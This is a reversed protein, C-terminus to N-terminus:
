ELAGGRLDAMLMAVALEPAANQLVQAQARRVRAFNASAAQLDVPGTHGPALALDPRGAAAVAQDRFHLALLDLAEVLGERDIRAGRFGGVLEQAFEWDQAADASGLAQRTQELRRALDDENLKLARGLSGAALATRLRAAQPDVGRAVLEDIVLEDALPGFSVKRCRSVLTPLLERPDQATLVLVNNPPPEELTKLLANGSSPNLHECERILVLRAGGSFPAFGLTRIVERVADVKIQASAADSPPEVVIFDEHVGAKARHCSDCHGCPTEGEPHLCNMVRFLARATTARGVGKPGVFLYAHALRDAQHEASLRRLAAQQGLVGDLRM